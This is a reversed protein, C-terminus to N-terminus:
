EEGTAVSGDVIDSGEAGSKWKEADLARKVNLAQEKRYMDNKVWKMLDRYTFLGTFIVEGFVGAIGLM